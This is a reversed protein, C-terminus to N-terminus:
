KNGKKNRYRLYLITTPIIVVTLVVLIPLAGAIFIFLAIFFNGVGKLGSYMAGWARDLVSNKGGSALLEEKSSTQYVNLEITSFAVNQNLYNMKGKIQEIEEQVKGLEKSFSILDDASSAKEMFALLRTEVVKKANLRSTLDVYEETVDQGQISSSFM